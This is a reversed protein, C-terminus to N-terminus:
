KMYFIEFNFDSDNDNIVADHLSSEGNVKQRVAAAPQSGAADEDLGQPCLRKM